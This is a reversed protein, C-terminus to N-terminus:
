IQEGATVWALLQGDRVLHTQSSSDRQRDEPQSSGASCHKPNQTLSDEDDTKKKGEIM